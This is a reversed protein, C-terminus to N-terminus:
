SHTISAESLAAKRRLRAACSSAFHGVTWRADCRFAPWHGHAPLLPHRDDPDPPDEGTGGVQRPEPGVDLPADRGGALDRGAAPEEVREVGEVRDDAPGVVDVRGPAAEDLPELEVGRPEVEIRPQEGPEVRHEAEGQVRGPGGPEVGPGLLDVPRPDADEEAVDHQRGLRSGGDGAVRQAPRELLREPDLGLRGELGELREVGPDRAQRRPQHRLGEPEPAPRRRDVRGAGRREIGQLQRGVLQDLPPGVRHQGAPEGPGVREVGLHAERLEPRERRGARGGGEARRGIPQDDAFPGPHEDELPQAVREALAVPDVAHDGAGPQGVVDVAAQEGGVGLSLEPGHPRGVVPRAPVRRVDVQDLAVRGARRHAVGDLEGAESGEPALSMRDARAHDARDLRVDAMGEGRRARRSQELDQQGQLLADQGRRRAEVSRCRAEVQVLAREADQRPGLGPRAPGLPRRPPRGEAAEAEAPDIRMDQDFFHSGPTAEVPGRPPERSGGSESGIAM